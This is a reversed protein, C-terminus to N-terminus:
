YGWKKMQIYDEKACEIPNKHQYSEQEVFYYKPNDLKRALDITAKIPILGKGLITSDYGNNMEGNKSKIEDKVHMLEFRGPYAKLVNLGSLGAGKLNGIDLEQVVIDRDCKQLIIDYLKQGNLVYNVEFDNHYGFRIGNKKCYAGCHNFLDMLRLLEDYNKQIKEDIWPTILYRQGAAVADEVTYKWQDTFDKQATNWDPFGMNVHGSVMKIGLDDLIKKFEKANYGYFKRQAYGAHEVYKYGIGAVQKLTSLPNRKMDDRVSYLQIGLSGRQKSFALLTDPMAAIGAVALASTKLFNRRSTM